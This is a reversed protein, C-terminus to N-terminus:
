EYDPIPNGEADLGPITITVERKGKLVRVTDGAKHIVPNYLPINPKVNGSNSRTDFRNNSRTNSRTLGARRRRMYERQYNTKAQGTLM